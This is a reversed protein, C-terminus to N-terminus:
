KSKTTTRTTFDCSNIPQSIGPWTNGVLWRLLSAEAQFQSINPIRCSSFPLSVWRQGPWELRSSRGIQARLELDIPTLQQEGPPVPLSLCGIHLLLQSRSKSRVRKKLPILASSAQFLVEISSLLAAMAWIRYKTMQSFARMKRVVFNLTGTLVTSLCSNSRIAIEQIKLCAPSKM